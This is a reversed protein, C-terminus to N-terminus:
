ETSYIWPDMFFGLFFFVTFGLVSYFFIRELELTFDWFFLIWLLEM